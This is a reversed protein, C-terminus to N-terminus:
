PLVKVIIFLFVYSEVLPSFPLYFTKGNHMSPSFFHVRLFLSESNFINRHHKRTSGKRPIFTMTEGKDVWTKGRAVERVSSSFEGKRGIVGSLIVTM